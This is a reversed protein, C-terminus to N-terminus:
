VPRAQYKELLAFPQYSMKNERMGLLGLDEELNLFRAESLVSQALKQLLVRWIFRYELNGKLVMVDFAGGPLMSGYAYGEVAGGVRMLIGRLGLSEFCDLDLLIKRHESDLPHEDTGRRESSEFWRQQFARIEDLDEVGLAAFEIGAQGYLQFFKNVERRKKALEPGAYAAIKRTHYLYDAFARDAEFAFAGPMEHELLLKDQESVGVLCLPQGEGEAMRFLKGMDNAMDVSGLPVFCAMTGPIRRTQRVFLADGEMCIENGYKEQLSYLNAFGLASDNRRLPALIREIEPRDSLQLQGFEMAPMKACGCARGRSFVGRESMRPWSAAAAAHPIPAVTSRNYKIYM